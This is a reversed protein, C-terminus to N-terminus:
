TLETLNVAGGGASGIANVSGKWMDSTWTGGTGDNAATCKALAIHYASTTPTQGLGLFIVTTGTNIITVEKRSANSNVVAVSSAGVTIPNVGPLANATTSTAFQASNPSLAVVLANDTALPVTSSGKTAPTNGSVPDFIMALTQIDQAGAGGEMWVTATGSTVNAGRVRLKALGGTAIAWQGNATTSSVEPFATPFRPLVKASLFNVGDVSAEFVITGTWSGTINFFTTGTGQTVLTVNQTNTITGTATIDATLAPTFTGSSSVRLAGTTDVSLLVQDGDTYSPAATNALAVLAGINNTGPAAANNTKTGTVTLPFSSTTGFVNSGDTIKTFWSQGITGANGQAVTANFDAASPSLVYIGNSGIGVEIWVTATGSTVTSGRLRLSNLGGTAILWQGNTTTQSVTAGAAPYPIATVSYFNTGDTSAEFVITGTWTGTVNFTAAGGGQATSGLTTSNFIIVVNQTSTITGTTSNDPPLATSVSGSFSANVNLKGTNDTSLGHLNSDAGVGGIFIATTPVPSGTLGDAKDFTRLHGSTDLSLPSTQATTYSPNATTVAAQVLPGIQGTTTSGQAYNQTTNSVLVTGSVAVTGTADVQLRNAGTVLAQNGASYIAVRLNKNAGTELQLPQLKAADDEAGVLVALSPIAPSGTSSAAFAAAQVDTNLNGTGDLNLVKPVNSANTGMVMIANSTGAGVELWVTATGTAVTNGRVRFSNLGGVNLTWQGNGTTSTAPTSSGQYPNANAAVWNTGDVSYEFVITGTWTGTINFVCAGGGNTAVTVNQTSTITGTQTRDSTLAPTFTGSSAVRLAGTLDTSLLVQDGSNYTPNASSAVAPLVGINNAIPAANNHTLNGAVIWPSTSQTVAVTGSITVAPTNAISVYGLGSSDVKWDHLLPTGAYDSGGIMVPNIPGGSNGTSTNTGPAFLGQVMPDAWLATTNGPQSILLQGASSPANGAVNIAGIENANVVGGNIYSLSAGTDVTMTASNNDGSQITGFSTSVVAPITTSIRSFHLSGAHYFTVTVPTVNDTGTKHASYHAVIRDTAALVFDPETAEPTYESPTPTLTTITPTSVPGFLLVETGPTYPSSIKYISIDIVCECNAALTSVSAWTSFTWTGSPLITLDPVGGLTVYKDLLSTSGSATVTATDTQETSTNPNQVIGHYGVIPTTSDDPYLLTAASGGGGGGGMSPDIQGSANLVVIKGADATGGSVQVAGVVQEVLPGGPTPQTIKISKYFDPM